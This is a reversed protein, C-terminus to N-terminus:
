EREAELEQWRDVIRATFEPSLQAVVAFCDRKELYYVQVAHKRGHGTEIQDEESQPLEIVGRKALTEISRKVDDHRKELLEAIERSSMTLPAPEDKLFLIM